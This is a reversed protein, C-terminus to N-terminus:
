NHYFFLELFIVIVAKQQGGTTTLTHTSTKFGKPPSAIKEIPSPSRNKSTNTLPKYLRGASSGSTSSRPRQQHLFQLNCEEDKFDPGKRLRQNVLVSPYNM